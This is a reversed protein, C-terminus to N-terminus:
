QIQRFGMKGGQWVPQKNGDDTWDIIKRGDVLMVIHAEDKILTIKHIATSKLHYM